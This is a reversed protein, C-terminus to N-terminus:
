MKLKSIATSAEITSVSFYTKTQSLNKHNLCRSIVMLDCGVDRRLMTAFTRRCSHSSHNPLGANIFANKVLRTANTISMPSGRSQTSPFLYEDGADVLTKIGRHILYNTIYPKLKATIYIRHPEKNKTSNLIVMDKINGGEDLISSIHIQLPESVRCGTFLLTKFYCLDRLHHRTGNLCQEVRKIQKTTLEPAAISM